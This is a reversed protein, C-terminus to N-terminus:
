EHIEGKKPAGDIMARLNDFHPELDKGAGACLTAWDNTLYQGINALRNVTSHKESLQKIATFLGALDDFCAQALATTDVAETVAEFVTKIPFVPAPAGQTPSNM